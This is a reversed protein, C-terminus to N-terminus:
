EADLMSVLDGISSIGLLAFATVIISVMTMWYSSVSLKGQRVEEALKDSALFLLVSPALMVGVAIAILIPSLPEGAPIGTAPGAKVVLIMGAAFGLFIWLFGAWVPTTFYREGNDEKNTM